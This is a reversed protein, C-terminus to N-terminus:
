TQNQRKNNDQKLFHRIGKGALPEDSFRGIIHLHVHPVHQGAVEGINWGVSYGEVAKEDLMKKAKLLLKKIVLFEEDSLEFPTAVHRQPIIMFSEKLIPHNATYIYALEEQYVVEGWYSNNSLCFPCNDNIGM